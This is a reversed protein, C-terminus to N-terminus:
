SLHINVATLAVATRGSDDDSVEHETVLHIYSNCRSCYSALSLDARIISELALQALEVFFQRLLALQLGFSLMHEVVCVTYECICIHGIELGFM